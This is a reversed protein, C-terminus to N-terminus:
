KPLADLNEPIAHYVVDTGTSLSAAEQDIFLAEKTAKMKVLMKSVSSSLRFAAYVIRGRVAGGIYIKMKGEM